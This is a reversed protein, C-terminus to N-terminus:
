DFVKDRCLCLPNLFNPSAMPIKQGSLIRRPLVKRGDLLKGVYILFARRPCLLLDDPEESELADFIPPKPQFNQTYHKPRYGPIWCLKIVNGSRLTTYKLSLNAVEGIRRGTALLILVLLKERIVEIDKSALPEFRISNLLEFLNNLSWFPM